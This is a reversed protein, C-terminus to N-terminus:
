YYAYYNSMGFDRPVIIIVGDCVTHVNLQRLECLRPHTRNRFRYALMKRKGYM